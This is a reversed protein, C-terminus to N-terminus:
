LFWPKDFELVCTFSKLTYATAIQCINSSYKIFLAVINFNLCDHFDMHPHRRHRGWSFHDLFGVAERVSCIPIFHPTQEYRLYEMTQEYSLRFPGQIVWMARAQEWSKSLKGLKLYANYRWVESQIKLHSNDTDLQSTLQFPMLSPKVGCNPFYVLNVLHKIKVSGRVRSLSPPQFFHCGEAEVKNLDQDQEDRKQGGLFSYLCETPSPSRILIM